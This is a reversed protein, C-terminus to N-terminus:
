VEGARMVYISWGEAGLEHAVLKVSQDLRAPAAIATASSPLSPNSGALENTAATLGEENSAMIQRMHKLLTRTKIQGSIIAPTEDFNESVSSVPSKEDGAGSAPSQHHDPLRNKM